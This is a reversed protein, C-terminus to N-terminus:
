TLLFFPLLKRAKMYLLWSSMQCLYLLIPYKRSVRHARCVPASRASPTLTTSGTSHLVPLMLLTMRGFEQVPQGPVHVHVALGFRECFARICLEDGYAGDRMMNTLYSRLDAEDYFRGRLVPSLEIQQACPRRIEEHTVPLDFVFRTDILSHLLARFLFNGDGTIPIIGCQPPLSQVLVQRSREHSQEAENHHLLSEALALKLQVDDSDPLSGGCLAVGRQVPRPHLPRLSAPVESVAAIPLTQTAAQADTVPSHRVDDCFAQTPGLVHTFDREPHAPSSSSAIPMTQTAAQTDAM